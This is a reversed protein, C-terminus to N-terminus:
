FRGGGGRWGECEKYFRLAELEGVRWGELGGVRWSELEGVGAWGELWGRLGGVTGQRSRPDRLRIRKTNPEIKLAKSVPRGDRLHM